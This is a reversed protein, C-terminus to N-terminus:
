TGLKNEEHVQREQWQYYVGYRILAKICIIQGDTTVLAAAKKNFLELLKKEVEYRGLKARKM